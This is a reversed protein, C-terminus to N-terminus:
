LYFQAAWRRYEAIPGFKERVEDEEGHRLNAIGSLRTHLEEASIPTTV